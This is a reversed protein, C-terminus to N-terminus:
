VSREGYQRAAGEGVQGQRLRVAVKRITLGDQAFHVIMKVKDLAPRSPDTGYETVFAERMERAQMQRNLM